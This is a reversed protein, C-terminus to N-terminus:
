AIKISGLTLGIQFQAKGSYPVIAAFGLNNDIPLDLTAAVLASSLISQPDCQQLYENGATANVISAMFQPAKEGLIDSFRRKLEDGSLLRKLVSVTTVKQEKALTISRQNSTRM